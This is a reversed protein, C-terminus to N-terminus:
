FKLDLFVLLCGQLLHILVYWLGGLAISQPNNELLQDDKYKWLTFIWDYTFGVM